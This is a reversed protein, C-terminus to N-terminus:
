HRTDLALEDAKVAADVHRIIRARYQLARRARSHADPHDVRTCREHHPLPLWNERMIHTVVILRADPGKPGSSNFLRRLPKRCRKAHYALSVIGARACRRTAAPTLGELGAWEGKEFARWKPFPTQSAGRNLQFLCISKGNDGRPNWTGPWPKGSHSVWSLYSERVMQVAGMALFDEIELGTVAHLNHSLMLTETATVTQEAIMELRDTREQSTEPVPKGPPYWPLPVPTLVSLLAAVLKAHLNM